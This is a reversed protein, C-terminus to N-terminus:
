LCQYIYSIITWISTLYTVYYGTESVQNYKFAMSLNTFIAAILAISILQGFTSIHAKIEGRISKLIKGGISTLSFSEEGSMLKKVYDGFDLSDKIIWLIIM